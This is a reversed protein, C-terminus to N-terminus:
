ATVAKLQKDIAAIEEDVWSMAGELGARFHQAAQLRAELASVPLPYSQAERLSVFANVADFQAAKLAIAWPAPEPRVEADGVPVVVLPVRDLYRPIISAVMIMWEVLMCDYGHTAPDSHCRRLTAVLDAM